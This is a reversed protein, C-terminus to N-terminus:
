EEDMAKEYASADFVKFDALADRGGRLVEPNTSVPLVRGRLTLAEVVVAHLMGPTSLIGVMRQMDPGATMLLADMRLRRVATEEKTSNEISFLAPWVGNKPEVKAYRAKHLRIVEVPGDELDITEVFGDIGHKQGFERARDLIALDRGGDLPVDSYGSLNGSEQIEEIQNEGPKGVLSSHSAELVTIEGNTKEIQANLDSLKKIAAMKLFAAWVAGDGNFGMAQFRDVEGSWSDNM